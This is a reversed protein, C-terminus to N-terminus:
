KKRCTHKWQGWLKTKSAFKREVSGNLEQLPCKCSWVKVTIEEYKMSESRNEFNEANEDKRTEVAVTDPNQDKHCRGFYLM